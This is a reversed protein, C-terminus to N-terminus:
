PLPEAGEPWTGQTPNRISWTALANALDPTLPGRAHCQLCEVYQGSMATLNIPGASCFPCPLMEIPPAEQNDLTERAKKFVKAMRASEFNSISM